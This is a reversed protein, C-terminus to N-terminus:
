GGGGFFDWMGSPISDASADVDACNPDDGCRLGLPDIATLPRNAVYAYRNWSQPNTMSVAALGAPDPSIWRGQNPTNERFMFDYLPAAGAVTDQNQGTFSRDTTGFEKYNEGFPAYAGTYYPTRA